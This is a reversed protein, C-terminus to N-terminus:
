YRNVPSQEATEEDSSHGQLLFNTMKCFRLFDQRELYTMPRAPALKERAKMIPATEAEYDRLNEAVAEIHDLSDHCLLPLHCGAELALRVSEAPKYKKSIAGMCLDDTFILGEYGLQERLFGRVLEPSLSSPREKDMDPLATHAIMLSPLEPMLTLFPISAEQLFHDRDGRIVPLDFHPDCSAEGMGPFHKGSTYIGMRRQMRNWIGAFSIIDDSNSGWCRSNLANINESGKDLVPAFNTNIGLALLGLANLRAAENIIRESRSKALAQASPLEVGLAATRMVRGGEQDIAIFPTSDDLTRLSECLEICQEWDEINRSFLIYGAPRLRSYTAREAASLTLGEIGVIVPLM